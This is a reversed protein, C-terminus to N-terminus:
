YNMWGYFFLRLNIDIVPLQKIYYTLKLWMKVFCSFAWIQKWSLPFHQSQKVFYLLDVYRKQVQKASSPLLKRLSIDLWLRLRLEQKEGTADWLAGYQTAQYKEDFYFGDGYGDHWRAIQKLYDAWTAQTTEFARHM